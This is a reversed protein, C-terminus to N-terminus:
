VQGSFTRIGLIASSPFCLSRQLSFFVLPSITVNAVLPFGPPPSCPCPMELPIHLSCTAPGGPFWLTCPSRALDLVPGLLVPLIAPLLVESLPPSCLSASPFVHLSTLPMLPPPLIIVFHTFTFLSPCICFSSCLEMLLTSLSLCLSFCSSIFFKLLLAPLSVFSFLKLLFAPLSM